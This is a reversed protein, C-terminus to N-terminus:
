RTLWDNLPTKERPDLIANENTDVNFIRLDMSKSYAKEAAAVNEAQDKGFANLIIQATRHVSAKKFTEPDLIQNGSKAIGRQRVDQVVYEAAAFSQEDWTTKGAKYATMLSASALAPYEVALEVDGSFKHGMYQVATSAKLAGSFTLRVWYMDFIRFTSLSSMDATRNQRLWNPSYPDVQWSLNGSRALTIGGVSTEDIVDVASVWSTGQWLSVSVVSAQDNVTSVEFWRHNFPLDSGIYLHDGAGFALTAADSLYDSMERSIDTQVGGVERIIRNLRLM